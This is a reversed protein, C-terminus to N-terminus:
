SPQIFVALNADIVALHDRYANQNARLRDMLAADLVRKTKFTRRLRKELRVRAVSTLAYALKLASTIDGREAEWAWRRREKRSARLVRMRRTAQSM